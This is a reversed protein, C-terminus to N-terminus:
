HPQVSNADSSVDVGASRNRSQPGHRIASKLPVDAEFVPPGIYQAGHDIIWLVTLFHACALVGM